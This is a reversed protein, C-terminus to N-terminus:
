AQRTITVGCHRCQVKEVNGVAGFGFTTDIVHFDHWGFWCFLRRVRLPVKPMVQSGPVFHVCPQEQISIWLENYVMVSAQAHFQRRDVVRRAVGWVM